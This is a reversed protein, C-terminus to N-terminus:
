AARVLKAWSGLLISTTDVHSTNQCFQWAFTGGANVVVSGRVRVLTYASTKSDFVKTADTTTTGQTSVALTNDSATSAYTSYQISTLTATTLKFSAALGGNTTMTTYLDAEFIYTGAAAVTWSFGTITAAVVNSTATVTAALVKNDSEINASITGGTITSAGTVAMATIVPATLTKNTLTQTATREVLDFGTGASNQAVLTGKTTEFAISAEGSAVAQPYGGPVTFVSTAPM